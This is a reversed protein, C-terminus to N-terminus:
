SSLFMPRLLGGLMKLAPDLALVVGGILCGSGGGDVVFSYLDAGGCELAV